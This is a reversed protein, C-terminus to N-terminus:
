RRDGLDTAGVGLRALWRAPPQEQSFELTVPDQRIPDPSPRRFPLGHVAACPASDLLFYPRALPDMREFYGAIRFAAAHVPRFDIVVDHSRRLAMVRPLVIYSYPSRISWYLTVELTM